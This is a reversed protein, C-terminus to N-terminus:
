KKSRNNLRVARLYLDSKRFVMQEERLRLEHQPCWQYKMGFDQIVKVEEKRCSTRDVGKRADTDGRCGLMLHRRELGGKKWRSQTNENTEQKM